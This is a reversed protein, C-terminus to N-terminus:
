RTGGPHGRDGGGGPGGSLRATRGCPAAAAGCAPRHRRGRWRPPDGRVARGSGPLQGTPREYTGGYRVDIRRAPRCAAVRFGTRAPGRLPTNSSAAGGGTRSLSFKLRARRPATMTGPRVPSSPPTPSSPRYSRLTPPRGPRSVAARWYRPHHLLDPLPVRRDAVPGGIEYRGM